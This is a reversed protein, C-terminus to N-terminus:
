LPVSFAIVVFVAGLAVLSAAGLAPRGRFALLLTMGM